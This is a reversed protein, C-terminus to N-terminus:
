AITQTDLWAAHADDAFSTVAAAVPPDAPVERVHVVQYDEAGNSTGTEPDRNPWEVDVVHFHQEGVRVMQGISHPAPYRGREHLVEGTEAHRIQVRAEPFGTVVQVSTAADPVFVAETHVTFRAAGGPLVQEVYVGLERDMVMVPGDLIEVQRLTHQYAPDLGAVLVAKGLWDSFSDQRFQGTPQDPRVTVTTLM